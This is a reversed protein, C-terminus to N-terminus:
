PSPEPGALPHGIALRLGIREEACAQETALLALQSDVAAARAAEAVPRTADGRAAATEFALAIRELEPAQMELVSRAACDRDLAAVLGALDSRTQQLRAVYEAKLRHRDAAAVRIAGRNRNWLPLDVSLAPGFTDVRSTDRARNLTLTLRPYQGLIARHLSAQQAEYGAALAKLDLRESRAATFLAEADAGSWAPSPDIPALALRATPPQGLMRNLEIRTADAERAAGLARARASAAGIRRAELEDGRLDHRAAATLSRRLATEATIAAQEALATARSQYQLRTALLQAQGAAGWEQWAIDLRTREAGHRAAALELHRTAISGFVDLGLSAAFAGAYGPDPANLVRDRGLTFQPDPLLGSAFVQAEAVREQERLAGLDPDALVALIGVAGLDLPKSLDLPVPALLPHRLLRAARELAAANPPALLAETAVGDIPEPRYTTCGLAMWAATVVAVSARM